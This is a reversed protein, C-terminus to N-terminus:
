LASLEYTHTATYTGSPDVWDVDLKYEVVVDQSNTQKGTKIQAGPSLQFEHRPAGENVGYTFRSSPISNTGSTLDRSKSLKLQWNVSSKVNAKTGETEYTGDSEPGGKPSVTGYDISSPSVTLELAQQVTAEISVDQKAASGIGAVLLFGTIAIIVIGLGKKKM